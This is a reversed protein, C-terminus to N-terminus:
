IFILKLSEGFLSSTGLPWLYIVFIIMFLLLHSSPVQESNNIISKIQIYEFKYGYYIIIKLM